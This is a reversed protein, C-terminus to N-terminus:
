DTYNNSFRSDYTYFAEYRLNLNWAMVEFEQGGFFIAFPGGSLGSEEPM